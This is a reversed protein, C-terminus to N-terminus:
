PRSLSMASASPYRITFAQSTGAGASAVLLHNLAVVCALHRTRIPNMEVIEERILEVRADERLIGVEGMKRYEEATFRHRITSAPLM